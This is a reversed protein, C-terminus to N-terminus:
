ARFPAPSGNVDPRSLCSTDVIIRLLILWPLGGAGTSGKNYRAAKQRTQRERFLINMKRM